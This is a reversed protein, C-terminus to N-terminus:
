PNLENEIEEIVSMTEQIVHNVRREFNNARQMELTVFRVFNPNDMLNKYDFKGDLGWDGDENRKLKRDIIKSELQELKDEEISNSGEIHMIARPLTKGYLDQISKRLVDNSIINIGISKLTEYTGNNYSFAIGSAMKFFGPFFVSDEPNTEQSLYSLTNNIGEKKTQIRDQLMQFIEMDSELNSKLEILIQKELRREKRNENWNNVQLALLIGIMVLLIEGIAYAAYKSLQNSNILSNRIKRFIRIM